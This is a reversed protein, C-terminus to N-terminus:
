KMIMTYNKRNIECIINHEESPDVRYYDKTDPVHLYTFDIETESMIEWITKDLKHMRSCSYETLM